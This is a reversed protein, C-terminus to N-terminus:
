ASSSGGYIEALALQDNTMKHWLVVGAEVDIFSCGYIERTLGCNSYLITHAGWVLASIYRVSLTSCLAACKVHLMYLFVLLVLTVSISLSRPHSLRSWHLSFALVVSVYLILCSNIATGLAGYKPVGRILDLLIWSFATWIWYLM